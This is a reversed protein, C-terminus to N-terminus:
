APRNAPRLQKDLFQDVRKWFDIWNNEHRWGHGEDPYIIWEVTRNSASIADRLRTAHVIPAAPRRHLWGLSSPPPM